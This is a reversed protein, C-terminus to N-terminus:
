GPETAEILTINPNNDHYIYGGALGLEGTFILESQSTRELTYRPADFAIGFDVVLSWDTTSNLQFDVNSTLPQFDGQTSDPNLSLDLADVNIAWDVLTSDEEYQIFGSYQSSQPVSDPLFSGGFLEELTFSGGFEQTTVTAGGAPTVDVLVGLSLGILTMSAWKGAIKAM